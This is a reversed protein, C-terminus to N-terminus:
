GLLRGIPNAYTKGVLGGCPRWNSHNERTSRLGWLASQIAPRATGNGQAGWAGVGECSATGGDVMPMVAMRSWVLSTSGVVIQTLQYKDRRKKFWGVVSSGMPSPVAVTVEALTVGPFQVAPANDDIIRVLLADHQSRPRAVVGFAEGGLCLKIEDEGCGQSVCLSAFVATEQDSFLHPWVLAPLSFYVSREPCFGGLMIRLDFVHVV